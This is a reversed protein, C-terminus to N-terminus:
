KERQEERAESQAIHELHLASRSRRTLREDDSRQSAGRVAVANGDEPAQVAALPVAKRARDGRVRTSYWGVYGVLHM